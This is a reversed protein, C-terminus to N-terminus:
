GAANVISSVQWGGGLAKILGVASTMEQGHVDSAVQQATLATNQATIVDTYVVTGAKYENIILTLARKADRAARDQVIAERELIRLSALSDEVNQFATLVTQRYTAVTAQYNARAAAVTASRLGGDFLTDAVQTGLAWSLAPISFWHAFGPNSVNGTASLNVTPYFASVAVGIQANAQATLREQQAIDPRRELLQSPVELPVRPPLQKCPVATLKFNAPPLNILVAIAHELQARTIGNNIAIAQASELQTQAQIVDTQAAVGSTYRNKTIQYAKKDDRVTDDFIKQDNDLARVMFYDQALTAQSSLRVSALLAASAQANDANAEVQRRVAGWIDPEWTADVFLSHSNSPNGNGSGGTSFAGTGGATASGAAAGSTSTSSSSSSSTTSSTASTVFTGSGNSGKKQRTVQASGTITPYYNALAEDVMARAVQYQAAANVITQNTINLQSELQNLKPDHFMSWWTGRDYIDQPHAVKWNKPAEKYKSPAQVTPRVYDPGVTCATLLISAASLVSVIIKKFFTQAMM